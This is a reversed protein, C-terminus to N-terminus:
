GRIIQQIVVGQSRHHQFQELAEDFSPEIRNNRASGTRTLSSKQVAQGTVYWFVFTNDCDFVGSFQLKVLLMDNAQFSSGGIDFAFTSNALPM